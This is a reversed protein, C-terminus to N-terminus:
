FQRGVGLGLVTGGAASGPLTPLAGQRLWLYRLNASLFWPGLAYQASAQWVPAVPQPGTWLPRMYAAGAGVQLRPTAQLCLEAGASAFALWRVVHEPAAPDVPRGLLQNSDASYQLTYPSATGPAHAIEVQQHLLWLGLAPRVSLPGVLRIPLALQLAAGLAPGLRSASNYLRGGESSTPSAGASLWLQTAALSVEPRLAHPRKPPCGKSQCFIHLAPTSDALLASDPRPQAALAPTTLSGPKSFPKPHISETPLAATKDLVAPADMPLTKAPIAESPGDSGTAATAIPAAPRALRTSVSLSPPAPLTQKESQATRRHLDPRGLAAGAKTTAEPSSRKLRQEGGDALPPAPLLEPTQGPEAQTRPAAAAPAEPRTHATNKEKLAARKSEIGATKGGAKAIHAQSGPQMFSYGWIGLGAGTGLLLPWLWVLLRRRRRKDMRAELAQWDQAGTPTRHSQLSHSLYGQGENPPIPDTAM